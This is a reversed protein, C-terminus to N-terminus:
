EGSLFLVGYSSMKGHAISINLVSLQVRMQLYCLRLTKHRNISVPLRAIRTMQEPNKKLLKKIERGICFCVYKYDQAWTAYIYMWPFDMVDHTIYKLPEIRPFTELNLVVMWALLKRWKRVTLYNPRIQTYM